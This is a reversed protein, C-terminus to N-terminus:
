PSRYVKGNKIYILNLRLMERKVEKFDEAADAIILNAAGASYGVGKEFRKAVERCIIERKRIQKPLKEVRGGVFCEDVVQRYFADSPATNNAEIISKITMKLIEDEIFYVSYYQEKKVSVIHTQQLKKLHFSVTSVSINLELALEEVFKPGEILLTIIKLRSKDAFAKFLEEARM